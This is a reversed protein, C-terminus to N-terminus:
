HSLAYVGVVEQPETVAQCSISLPAHTMLVAQCSISLPAHTMLQIVKQLMEIGQKPVTSVSIFTIQVSVIASHFTGETLNLMNYTM